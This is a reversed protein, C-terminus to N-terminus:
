SGNGLLAAIDARVDVKKGASWNPTYSPKRVPWVTSTGDNSWKGDFFLDREKQRREIISAPRKWEMFATRAAVIRGALWLDVWSARRIAGTNYHFSLAAALQAETLQRGAFESLVDPLYRTMLLWLYIELCKRVPQPKDKYRDVNHGSRNTVGIGWTGVGVSDLYWEQVIAEHGILELAIRPTIAGSNAALEPARQAGSLIEPSLSGGSGGAGSRALIAKFEDREDIVRDVAAFTAVGPYGDETVGLRRQVSRIDDRLTM